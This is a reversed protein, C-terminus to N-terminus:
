PPLDARPHGLEALVNPIRIRLACQAPRHEQNFTKKRLTWDSNFRRRIEVSMGKPQFNKALNNASNKASNNLQFNKM